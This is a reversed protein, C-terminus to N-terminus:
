PYAPTLRHNKAGSVARREGSEPPNRAASVRNQANGQPLSNVRSATIRVVDSDIWRTHVRKWLLEADAIGSWVLRSTASEMM